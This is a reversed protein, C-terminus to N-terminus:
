GPRQVAEDVRGELEGVVESGGRGRRRTTLRPVGTEAVGALKVVRRRWADHREASGARAVEGDVGDAEGARACAGRGVGAGFRPGSCRIRSSRGNATADM